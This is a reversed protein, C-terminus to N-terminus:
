GDQIFPCSVLLFMSSSSSIFVILNFSFTYLKVTICLLCMLHELQLTINCSINRIEIYYKMSIPFMEHIRRTNAFHILIIMSNM